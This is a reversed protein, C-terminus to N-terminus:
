GHREELAEKLTKEEWYCDREVVVDIKKTMTGQGEVEIILEKDVRVQELENLDIYGFEGQDNIQAWGFATTSVQQDIETIYWDISGVFYHLYVIADKGRGDQGM